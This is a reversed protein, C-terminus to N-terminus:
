SPEDIVEAVSAAVSAKELWLELRKPDKQSLIRERIVDPVDVGRVRLVTLVARAAEEVRGEDAAM